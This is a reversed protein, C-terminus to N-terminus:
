RRAVPSPTPTWRAARPTSAHPTKYLHSGTRTTRQLLHRAAPSLDEIRRATHSSSAPTPTPPPVASPTPPATNREEPETRPTPDLRRPTAALQGWTMLQELRQEHLDVSRPTSTASVFGYGQIRPSGAMAADIVSSSPTSPTSAAGETAWTMRTHAPLVRPRESPAPPARASSAGLTNADPVYMLAGRASFPLAQPPAHPADSDADAAAGEIAPRAPLALRRGKEAQEHAHVLRAQRKDTEAQAADYAWQYQHRRRKRAVDMLHAFSANDETTYRAQYQGISLSTRVDRTRPTVSTSSATCPTSAISRPTEPERPTPPPMSLPTGPEGSESRRVMDELIGCRAEEEVLKRATEEIEDM